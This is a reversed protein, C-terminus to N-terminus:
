HIFFGDGCYKCGALLVYSLLVFPTLPMAYKKDVRKVAWLFVAALFAFIFTLYILMLNYSLGIGAGTM